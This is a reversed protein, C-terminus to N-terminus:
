TGAQKTESEEEHGPQYIAHITSWPMFVPTSLNGELVRRLIVGVSSVENLVFVGERGEIAGRALSFPNDDAGWSPGAAYNVIVVTGVWEYVTARQHETEEPQNPRRIKGSQSDL